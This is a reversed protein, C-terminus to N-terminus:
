ESHAVFDKCADPQASSLITQLACKYAETKQRQDAIAVISSLLQQTSQAM